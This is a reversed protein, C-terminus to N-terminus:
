EFKLGLCVFISQFFEDGKKLYKRTGNSITIIREITILSIIISFMIQFQGMRAMCFGM